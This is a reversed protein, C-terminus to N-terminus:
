HDKLFYEHYEDEILHKRLLQSLFEFVQNIEEDSLRPVILQLFDDDSFKQVYYMLSKEDVERSLGFAVLGDYKDVFTHRHKQMIMETSLSEAKLIRM